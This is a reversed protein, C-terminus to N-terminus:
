HTDNCTPEDIWADNKDYEYGLVGRVRVGDVWVSHPNQGLQETLWKAFNQNLQTMRSRYREPDTGAGAGAGAGGSKGQSSPPQQHQQQQQPARPM